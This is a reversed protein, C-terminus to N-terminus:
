KRDWYSQTDSWRTLAEPRYLSSEDNPDPQTVMNVHGDVWAVGCNGDHRAVARGPAWTSVEYYDPWCFYRGEEALSDTPYSWVVRTEVLVITRSPDLIEAVQAPKIVNPYVGFDDNLGYSQGYDAIGYTFKTEKSKENLSAPCWATDRSTLYGLTEFRRIWRLSIDSPSGPSVRDCLPYWGDYDNLYLSFGLNNQHLNNLCVTQRALGKAKQLSPLLISVLLSIIAVVVLLEILTFAKRWSQFTTM